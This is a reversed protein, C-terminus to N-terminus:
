EEQHCIEAATEHAPPLSVMVPMVIHMLLVVARIVFMVVPVPLIHEHGTNCKEVVPM